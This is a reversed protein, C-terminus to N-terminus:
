FYFVLYSILETITITNNFIDQSYESKGVAFTEKKKKKDAELLCSYDIM